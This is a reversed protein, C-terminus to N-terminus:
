KALAVGFFHSAKAPAKGSPPADIELVFSPPPATGWGDLESTVVKIIQGPKLGAASRKTFVRPALKFEETHSGSIECHWDYQPQGSQNFQIVRGTNTCKFDPESWKETKFAIEITDGSPKVSEIRGGEILHGQRRYEEPSVGGTGDYRENLTSVRRVRSDIIRKAYRSVDDVLEGDGSQAGADTAGWMAATLPGAAFRGEALFLQEAAADALRGEAADCLVLRALLPYGVTDTAGAIVAEKTKPKTATVHDVLLDHLKDCGIPHPKERAIADIAM